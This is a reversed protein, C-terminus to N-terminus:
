VQYHLGGILNQGSAYLEACSKIRSVLWQESGNVQIPDPCPFAPDEEWGDPFEDNRYNTKKSTIVAAGKPQAPENMTYADKVQVTGNYFRMNLVCTRLEIQRQELEWRANDVGKGLRYGAFDRSGDAKEETCYLHLGGWTGEWPEQGDGTGRYFDGAPLVTIHDPENAM